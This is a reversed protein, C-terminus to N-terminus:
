LRTLQSPRVKRPGFESFNVIAKITGFIEEMDTITGVGYTAHRVRQGASWAQDIMEGPEDYISEYHTKPKPSVAQTLCEKPIERLFRSPSNFSNQNYTFRREATHLSLKRRARTVGVYFLRREEEVLLPEELSNQHPLLGDEVGVIYVRDFELGKAMHLTMLTVGVLDRAAEEDRNLSITEIWQRLGINPDRLYASAMASGLEHINDLKEQFQEPFKKQIYDKYGIRNELFPIVEDLPLELIQDLRKILGLFEAVKQGVRGEQCARRIADFLSEGHQKALSVLDDFAKKGIGRPPTNLIRALAIDDRKNVIFKLYAVLDKIELRDYFAVSGYITYPINNQTLAEELLRSQSNTRYFVATQHYAFQSQEAKLSSAVQFAELENDPERWITLPEGPENETFLTKESRHINNSIVASAARVINGTCRYNQELTLVRCGSFQSKFDAINSPNAGRWSYISQDDDGVVVVNGHKESLRKILEFQTVNTDQFEDVMIYQFRSQMIERVGDNRRLLLLMNMLLDGFDMANANVLAQQYEKYTEVAGAPVKKRHRELYVSAESPLLGQMKAWQIFGKLQNVLNLLDKKNARHAIINKLLTTSDKDDYITFDPNFGLEGAFERLWRACSAHFTSVFVKKGEPTLDIVRQKMEGAAKNTFTMALIRWPAVGNKILHAIRATIVRTKGSGAGAFIM